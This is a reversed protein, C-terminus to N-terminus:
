KKVLKTVGLKKGNSADFLSAFYFGAPASSLEGVCGNFIVSRDVEKNYVEKGTVDAVKVLYKSSNLSGNYKITFTTNVITPYVIVENSTNSILEYKIVVTKLLETSKGDKDVQVLKYYNNGALPSKDLLTYIGTSNAAVTGIITYIQEEGARKVEFRSNETESSTKWNLSVGNNTKSGSFDVLTVPLTTVPAILIEFRNNGFSAAVSKNIAFDYSTGEASLNVIANQYSDKLKAEYGVPVDNLLFSLSYNGTNDADVGLKVSSVVSVHPMYNIALKRGESSLSSLFVTEGGSRVVDYDAVTALENRKLVVLTEDSNETNSRKLTVRIKSAEEETPMDNVSSINNNVSKENVSMLKNYSASSYNAAGVKAAETFTVSAPLKGTNQVFFAQGPGIYRSGGNITDKGNYVSYQRNKPNWIKIVKSISDGSKTVAHWDIVAAYPNGLLNTGVLPVTISQQNLVGKFTMVISEADVYPANLKNVSDARSGRYYISAGRGVNLTTTIKPIAVLSSIYTWASADNTVNVDFGNTAGGSGTILMDDSFQTFSYKRNGEVNTNVFSTSNDYIPSSLLRNTRWTNKSGGQIYKEVTVSGRISSSTPIVSVSASGLISSKLTLLGEAQLITNEDMTLYKGEMVSFKGSGGLTKTGGGSFRVNGFVVGKGADSGEDKILQEKSGTFSVSVNDGTLGIKGGSSIWNGEVAFTGSGSFTSVRKNSFTGAITLTTGPNITVIPNGSLGGAITLNGIKTTSSVTPMYTYAKDSGIRVLDKEGPAASPTNDSGGLRWNNKDSWISSNGGTWDYVNGSANSPSSTNVVVTNSEAYNYQTTSGTIQPASTFSFTAGQTISSLVNASIYYYAAVALDGNTAGLSYMRQAPYLDNTQAAGNWFGVDAVPTDDGNGFFNDESRRLKMTNGEIVGTINGSNNLKFQYFDFLGRTKVQLGYLIAGQQGAYLPSSIGYSADNAGSILMQMTYLKIEDFKFRGSTTSSVSLGSYNYTNYVGGEYNMDGRLTSAEKKSASYPDIFLLWVYQGYRKVRQIRIAYTTVNGGISNLDYSLLARDDNVNKRIRLEMSSGNQTLYFGSMDSLNTNNAFLWYRWANEGNDIVKPDDTNGGNNRYIFTWEYGFDASNLDTGNPLFSFQFGGAASVGTSSLSNTSGVGIPNTTSVELAAVSGIKTLNAGPTANEFNNYYYGSIKVEQANSFLTSVSLAFVGIISLFKNPKKKMRM